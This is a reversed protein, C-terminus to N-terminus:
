IESFSKNRRFDAQRIYEVLSNMCERFVEVYVVIGHPYTLNMLLLQIWDNEGFKKCNNGITGIKNFETRYILHPINLRIYKDFM